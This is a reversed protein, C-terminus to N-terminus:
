GRTHYGTTKKISSAQAQQRAKKQKRWAKCRGEDDRESYKYHYVSCKRKGGQKTARASTNNYMHKGDGGGAKTKEKTTEIREMAIAGGGFPDHAGDGRSIFTGYRVGRVICRM